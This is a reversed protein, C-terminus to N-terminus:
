QIFGDFEARDQAASPTLLAGTQADVYFCRYNVSNRTQDSDRLTAKPNSTWLTHFTWVPKLYYRAAANEQARETKDRALVENSDVGEVLAKKRTHYVGPENYLLYGFEVEYVMRLKGASIEPEIAAIAQDFGILPVDYALTELASCRWLSLSSLREEYGTYVANCRPWTQYEDARMGDSNDDVAELVHSLIPIGGLKPRFEMRIIGPLADRKYGYFYLHGDAISEPHLFDYDAPDYGVDAIATEIQECVSGLTTDSLPIYANEPAFGDYWIHKNETSRNLRKGNCKTPYGSTASSLSLTFQEPRAVAQDWRDTSVTDVGCGVLLVPVQNVDPLHIEADVVIDRWKTHYTEQWRAPTQQKLQVINDARAVGFFLSVAASLAALQKWMPWEDKGFAKIMYVRPNHSLNALRSTKNAYRKLM